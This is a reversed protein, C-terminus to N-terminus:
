TPVIFQMAQRANASVSTFIQVYMTIQKAMSQTTILCGGADDHQSSSPVPTVTNLLHSELYSASSTTCVDSSLLAGAPNAGNGMEEHDGSFSATDPFQVMFDDFLKIDTYNKIKIHDYNIFDQIKLIVIRMAYKKTTSSKSTGTNEM